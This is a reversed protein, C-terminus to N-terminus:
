LHTVVLELLYECADELYEFEFDIETNVKELLYEMEEAIAEYEEREKARAVLRDNQVKLSEAYRMWDDRNRLLADYSLNIPEDILKLTRRCRDAIVATLIKDDIYSFRDNVKFGRGRGLGRM